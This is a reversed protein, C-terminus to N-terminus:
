DLFAPVAALPTARKFQVPWSTPAGPAFLKSGTCPGRKRDPCITADSTVNEPLITGAEAIPIEIRVVSGGIKLTAPFKCEGPTVCPPAVGADVLTAGALNAGTFDAGQLCASVFSGGRGHADRVVTTGTFNCNVLCAGDFVAGALNKNQVNSLNLSTLYAGAFDVGPMTAGTVTATGGYLYAGVFNVGSLQADTFDANFLTAKALVAALHDPSGGLTAGAFSARTCDAGSLNAGVLMAGSFNTQTAGSRLNAEFLDFRSLVTGVAQLGPLQARGNADRPMGEIVAETLDLNSWDLLLASYAVTAKVLKVRNSPTRCLPPGPFLATTVDTGSFDTGALTTPHTGDLDRFDTAAIAAGRFDTGTLDGGRFDTAGLAAGRFDARGLRAGSLNTRDLRAGSFVAGTGDIGGSLDAGTLDVCARGVCGFDAGACSRTRQIEPVGPGLVNAALRVGGVGATVDFVCRCYPNLGSTIFLGVTKVDAKVDAESDGHYPWMLTVSGGALDLYQSLFQTPSSSTGAWTLVPYWAIPSQEVSMHLWLGNTAAQLQFRGGGTDYALFVGRPDSPGIDMLDLLGDERVGLPKNAGLRLKGLFTV